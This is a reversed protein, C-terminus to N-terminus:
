EGIKKFKFNVKEKNELYMEKSQWNDCHWTDKLAWKCHEKKVCNKCIINEEM